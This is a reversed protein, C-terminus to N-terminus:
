VELCTGLLCSHPDPNCMEKQDEAKLTPHSPGM